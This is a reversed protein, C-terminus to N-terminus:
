PMTFTQVRVPSYTTHSNVAIAPGPVLQCSCPLRYAYKGEVIIKQAMVRQDGGCGACESV